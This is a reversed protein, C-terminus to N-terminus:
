FKLLPPNEIRRRHQQFIYTMNGPCLMWSPISRRVLLIVGTDKRILPCSLQHIIGHDQFFKNLNHNLFERGNDSHLIQIRAHFQTEVM